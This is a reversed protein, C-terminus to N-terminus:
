GASFKLRSGVCGRAMSRSVRWPDRIECAVGVDVEALLPTFGRFRFGEAPRSPFKGSEGSRDGQRPSGQGEQLQESRLPGRRNARLHCILPRKWNRWSAVLPRFARASPRGSPPRMSGSTPTSWCMGSGQWGRRWPIEPHRQQIDTPIRKAAEGLLELNRLVADLRMQEAFLDEQSHGDIYHAIRRCFERM